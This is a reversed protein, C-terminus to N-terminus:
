VGVGTVEGGGGLLGVCEEVGLFLLWRRGSRWRLGARLAGSIRRVLSSCPVPTGATDRRTAVVRKHGDRHLPVWDVFTRM